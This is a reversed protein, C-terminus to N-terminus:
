NMVEIQPKGKKDYWCEAITGSKTHVFVWTDQEVMGEARASDTDDIWGAKLGTEKELLPLFANAM